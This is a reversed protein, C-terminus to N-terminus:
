IIKLSGYLLLKLAIVLNIKDSEGYYYLGKDTFYILKNGNWLTTKQLFLGCSADSTGAFRHRPPSTNNGKPL